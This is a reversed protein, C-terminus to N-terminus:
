LTNAIRTVTMPSHFAGKSDICLFKLHPYFSLRLSLKRQLCEKSDSVHLINNPGLKEELCPLDINESGVDKEQVSKFEM